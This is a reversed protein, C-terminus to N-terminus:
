PISGRIAASIESCCTTARPRRLEVFGAWFQRFGPLEVGKAAASARVQDYVLQCWGM